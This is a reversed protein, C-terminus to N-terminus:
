KSKILRNRYYGKKHLAYVIKAEHYADDAGRHLENYDDDPYFHSYAEEVKPWKFKGYNGPIRCIDTSVLMPCPLLKKFEIGYAKLFNVDFQRNYATVGHEYSDIIEQIEGKVDNWYQGKGAIDKLDIYGNKVIWTNILKDSSIEPDILKDFVTKIKGNKLNLEVIGVEVIKGCKDPNHSFFGTTEIDIVLIKM